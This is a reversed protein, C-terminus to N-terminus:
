EEQTTVTFTTIQTSSLAAVAATLTATITFTIPNGPGDLITIPVADYPEGKSATITVPISAITGVGGQNPQNSTLVLNITTDATPLYLMAVEAYPDVWDGTSADQVGILFGRRADVVAVLGPYISDLGTIQQAPELYFWSEFDSAVLGAGSPLRLDNRPTTRDQRTGPQAYARGDLYLPAPGATFLAHGPLRVRARAYRPNVSNLLAPQLTNKADYQDLTWSLLGGPSTVTSTDTSTVTSDLVEIPRVTLASSADQGQPVPEVSVIFNGGDVPGTVPKNLTVKLGNAALQDLTMVDDNAWNIGLVRIAAIDRPPGLETLPTFVQRRDEIPYKDPDTDPFWHVSALPANLVTLSTPPQWQDQDSDCPPWEVGTASRAPFTWYDGSQYSGARFSVQIGNELDIVSPDVPLVIDGSVVQQGSQDWRRIRPNRSVDVWSADATMTVASNDKDVNLIQFLPGVENPTLGLEYSDSTMEVWQGAQFGLNADPGVSEVTVTPGNVATVAAVVSGNERSWKFTPGDIGDATNGPNHIEVRYLQNEIGQYGAAAVPGCGCDAAAGTTYVRLKGTSAVQDVQGNEVVVQWVTQLRATTDAQGLAPERLCPDDLSTVLRQWVRLSVELTQGKGLGAVLNAGTGDLVYLFPQKDYTVDDPNEVLLGNVYYRGAGIVIDGNQISIAFGEDDLPGGYQGIVDVTETRHRAGDLFRQENADADLSVRGQQELVATYAKGTSLRIRSFDGRM